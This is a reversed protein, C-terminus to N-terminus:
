LGFGYFAKSGNPYYGEILVGGKKNKLYAVLEDTNKIEKNDAKTVIFGNKIGASAFKGKGVNSIKAGGSLKLASLEDKSPESIDAGLLNLMRNEIIDAKALNLKGDKNQLKVKFNKREGDRMVVVAVEDGPRHLSVKEQLEPVSTVIHEDIQTIIDGLRLGGKEASGNETLGSVYIGKIFPIKLEEAVKSDMERISIGLFARQVVGFEALDKIVKKVMNVPVAFAYGAFSGTNSAIATNIGILEGKTNVLAGGSNGPNVAADTQIFSEVPYIGSNPDYELININRAKASIIGATVTSTLNFPNGVALVWEGIKVEDSNGFEIHPLNKAKVKLLALDTSPDSGVVEAEYSTKDNLVVEIKQAQKVVHNNTVIYGDGSVIVGSGSSTQVQTKPKPGPQGYFFYYFPDFAYNTQTEIASKVHVVAPTSNEAAAVFDPVNSPTTSPISVYKVPTPADQVVNSNQQSQFLYSGLLGGGVALVFFFLKKM